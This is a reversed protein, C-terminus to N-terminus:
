PYTSASGPSNWLIEPPVVVDYNRRSVCLGADIADLLGVLSSGEALMEDQADLLRFGEDDIVVMALSGWDMAGAMRRSLMVATEGLGTIAPQWSLRRAGCWRALLKLEEVDMM